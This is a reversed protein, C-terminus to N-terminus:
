SVQKHASKEILFKYLRTAIKEAFPNGAMRLRMELQGSILRAGQERDTVVGYCPKCYFYVEPAPMGSAGAIAKREDETLTISVGQDDPQQRGCVECKM